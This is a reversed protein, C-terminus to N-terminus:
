QDAEIYRGEIKSRANIPNVQISYFGTEGKENKLRIIMNQTIGQPFFYMYAVDETFKKEITLNEVSDFVVGVPLATDKGFQGSYPSFDPGSEDEEEDRGKLDNKEQSDDDEMYILEETNSIELRYTKKDFDFVIRHVLGKVISSDYAFRVLGSIKVSASKLNARFIRNIQPVGVGIIMGLIALVILIEILSFAKKNSM